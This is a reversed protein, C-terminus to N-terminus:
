PTSRHRNRGSRRNGARCIASVTSIGLRKIARTPRWASPPWYVFRVLGIVDERRVPGFSRGDTSAARRDGLVLYEGPGLRLEIPREGAPAPPHGSRRPAPGPMRPSRRPGPMRPSLRPGHPPPALYPEPVPRGAIELRDGALRVREGPLGVVRKVLEMRAAVVADSASPPPGTPAAAPMAGPVAVRGQAPRGLIVLQGRRLPGNVAGVALLTGDALTPTMSSGAVRV